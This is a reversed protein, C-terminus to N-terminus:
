IQRQAFRRVYLYLFTIGAVLYISMIVIMSKIIIGSIYAPDTMGGINMLSIVASMLGMLFGFVIVAAVVTLCVRLVGGKRVLVTMALTIMISSGMSVANILMLSWKELGLIDLSLMEKIEVAYLWEGTIPFYVLAVPLLTVLPVMVFSYILQVTMKESNLAPLTYTIQRGVRSAFIAPALMVMWQSLSVAGNDFIVMKWDLGGAHLLGCLLCFLLSVLFFCLLPLRTRPWWYVAVALVRRWSFKDDATIM